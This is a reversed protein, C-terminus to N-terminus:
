QFYIFACKKVPGDRGISPPLTGTLLRTRTVTGVVSPLWRKIGLKPTSGALLAKSQRFFM